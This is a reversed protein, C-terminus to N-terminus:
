ALIKIFLNQKEYENWAIKTQHDKVKNDLLDLEIDKHYNALVETWLHFPQSINKKELFLEKTFTAASTSFRTICTTFSQSKYHQFINKCISRVHYHVVELWINEVCYGINLGKWYNMTLILLELTYISLKYLLGLM